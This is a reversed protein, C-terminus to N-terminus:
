STPKLEVPISSEPTAAVSKAAANRKRTENASKAADSRKKAPVNVKRTAAAKVAGQSRKM